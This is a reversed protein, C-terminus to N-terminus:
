EAEIIEFDDIDIRCSFEKIEVEWSGGFKKPLSNVTCVKGWFGPYIGPSQYMKVKVGPRLANLREKWLHSIEKRLRDENNEYFELLANASIIRDAADRLLNGTGDIEIKSAYRMLEDVLYDSDDM